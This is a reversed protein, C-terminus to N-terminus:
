PTARQIPRTPRLALQRHPRTSANGGRCLSCAQLPEERLLYQRIEAALGPHYCLDIGDDAFDRDGRFYTQFHPPRTCAYFRGHSLMHCRHRLWCEKWVSRIEDPDGSPKPRDMEVFVDQRKWNLELGFELSKAKTWDVTEQPLAPDPYLSITMADALWWFEDPMRPLLFGNTTVSVVEAIGTEKAIRLCQILQRHLLPEGGVLKFWTPALVRRARELDRQLDDPRIFWRPLFPSLSCCGECRLNCHDVIHVELSRTQVRGKIIEYAVALGM